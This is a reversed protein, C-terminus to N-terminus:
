LPDLHAVLWQGLAAALCAPLLVVPPYVAAPRAKAPLLVLLRKCEHKLAVVADEAASMLSSVRLDVAPLLSLVATPLQLGPASAGGPRRPSM